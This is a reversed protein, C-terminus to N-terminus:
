RRRSDRLPILFDGNISRHILGKEHNTQRSFTNLGTLTHKSSLVDREVRKGALALRFQNDKLVVDSDLTKGGSM